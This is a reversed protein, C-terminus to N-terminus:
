RQHVAAMLLPIRRGALGTVVLCGSRAGPWSIGTAPQQTHVSPDVEDRFTVPRPRALTCTNPLRSASFRGQGFGSALVEESVVAASPVDAIYSYTYSLM